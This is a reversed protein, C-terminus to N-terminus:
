KERNKQKNSPIKYCKLGEKILYKVMNDRFEYQTMKVGM